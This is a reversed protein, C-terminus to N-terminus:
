DAFAADAAEAARGRLPREEMLFLFVCSLAFGVMAAAFVIQFVSSLDAGSRAAAAALGETSGAQGAGGTGAVIIAGFIAVILAGGLSRSFNATGTATGLEHPQVANQISVTSVPLLTGLGMSICALLVELPVLSLDRAFAILMGTCIVALALGLIPMRKYHKVKAMSRGSITAGAVTGIMLPIVALGSQSASFGRVSEFYVPLFITLGIYTGMGFCAALTGMRVVPNRFISPPILPEPAHRLRLVFLVWLLASSGFLLLVPPSFWPYRIGGWSLGLMFTVTAAVM